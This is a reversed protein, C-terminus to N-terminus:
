KEDPPALDSHVATELAKIREDRTTLSREAASEIATTREDRHALERGLEAVTRSAGGGGAAGHAAAMTSGMRVDEAAGGFITPGSGGIEGAMVRYGAWREGLSRYRDAARTLPSAAAHRADCLARRPAFHFPFDVRRRKWRQNYGMSLNGGKSSRAILSTTSIGMRSFSITVYLFPTKTPRDWTHLGYIVRGFGTPSTVFHQTSVLTSDKRWVFCAM